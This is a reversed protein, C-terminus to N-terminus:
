NLAGVHVWMCACASVHMWMCGCLHILLFRFYLCVCYFCFISFFHTLWNGAQNMIILVNLSIFEPLVGEEKLSKHLVESGIVFM